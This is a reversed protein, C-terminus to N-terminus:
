KSMFNAPPGNCHLSVSPVQSSIFHTAGGRDTFVDQADDLSASVVFAMGM